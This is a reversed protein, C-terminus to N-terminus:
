PKTARAVAADRLRKGEPHSTEGGPCGPVLGGGGCRRTASRLRQQAYPKVLTLTRMRSHGPPGSKQATESLHEWPDSRRSSCVQAGSAGHAAATADFAYEEALEMGRQSGLDGILHWRPERSQSPQSLTARPLETPQRSATSGRAARPCAVGENVSFRSGLLYDSGPGRSGTHRPLCGDCPLSQPFHPQLPSTPIPPGSTDRSAYSNLHSHTGPLPFLM